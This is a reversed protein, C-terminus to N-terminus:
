YFMVLTVRSSNRKSFVVKHSLRGFIVGQFRNIKCISYDSSVNPYQIALCGDDDMNTDTLMIVVTCFCVHDAHAALGNLEEEPYYNIFCQSPIGDKFIAQLTRISSFTFHQQVYAKVNEYVLKYIEKSCLNSHLLPSSLMLDDHEPPLLEGCARKFYVYRLKIGGPKASTIGDDLFDVQQVAHILQDYVGLYYESSPLM